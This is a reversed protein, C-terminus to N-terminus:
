RVPRGGTVLADLLQGLGARDVTRSSSAPVSAGDGDEMTDVRYTGAALRRVSVHVPMGFRVYPGEAYLLLLGERDLRELWGAVRVDM